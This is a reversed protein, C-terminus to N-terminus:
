IQEPRGNASQTASGPLHRMFANWEELSHPNHAAPESGSPHEVVRQCAHWSHERNPSDTGLAAFVARARLSVQRQHFVRSSVGLYPSQSWYQGVERQTATSFPFFLLSPQQQNRHSTKSSSNIRLTLGKTCLMKNM